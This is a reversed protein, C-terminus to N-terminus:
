LEDWVERLKRGPRRLWGVVGRFADSPERRLTRLWPLVDHKLTQASKILFVGSLAVVLVLLCVYVLVGVFASSGVLNGPTAANAVAVAFLPLSGGAALKLLGDARQDWPNAAFRESLVAEADRRIEAATRLDLEAASEADDSAAAVEDARERVRTRFEDREVGSLERMREVFLACDVLAATVEGDPADEFALEFQRDPCSALLGFGFTGARIRERIQREDRRRQQETSEEFEDRVRRRQTKTLLSAPRGNM